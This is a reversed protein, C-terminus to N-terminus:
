FWPAVIKNHLILDQNFPIRCRIEKFKPLSKKDEIKAFFTNVKIKFMSVEVFFQETLIALDPSSM